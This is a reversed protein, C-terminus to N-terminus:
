ITSPTRTPNPYGSIGCLSDNNEAGALFAPAYPKAALTAPNRRAFGTTSM